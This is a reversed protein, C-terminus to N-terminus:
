QDSLYLNWLRMKSMDLIQLNKRILLFSKSMLKEKLWPALNKHSKGILFQILKSIKEKHCKRKGVLFRLLNSIKEKVLMDM